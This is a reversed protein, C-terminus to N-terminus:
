TPPKADNKESVIHVDFKSEDTLITSVLIPSGSRLDFIPNGNTALITPSFDHQICSLQSGVKDIEFTSNLFTMNKLEDNCDFLNVM